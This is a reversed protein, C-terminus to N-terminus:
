VWMCVCVCGCACMGVGVHMCVRVCVHLYHCYAGIAIYVLPMALPSCPTLLQGDGSFEVMTQGEM